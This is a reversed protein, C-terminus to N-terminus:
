VIQGEFPLRGKGTDDCEIEVAWADADFAIADRIYADAAMDAVANGAMAPLWALQGRADRVQTYVHSNGDRYRCQLIIAGSAPNGRKIVTAFVGQAALRRIQGDLWIHTPIQDM